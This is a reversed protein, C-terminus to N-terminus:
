KMGSKSDNIDSYAEDIDGGEESFYITIFGYEIPLWPIVSMHAAYKPSVIAQLETPRSPLLKNSLDSTRRSLNSVRSIRRITAKSERRSQPKFQGYFLNEFTSIAHDKIDEVGKQFKM